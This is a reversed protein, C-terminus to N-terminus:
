QIGIRLLQETTYLVASKASRPDGIYPNEKVEAVRLRCSWGKSEKRRRLRSLMSVMLIFVNITIWKWETFLFQMEEEKPNEKQSKYSVTNYYLIYYCLVYFIHAVQSRINYM